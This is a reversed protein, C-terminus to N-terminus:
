IFSFDKLGEFTSKPTESKERGECVCVDCIPQSFIPREITIVARRNIERIASSILSM